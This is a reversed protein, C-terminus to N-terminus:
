LDALTTSLETQVGPPGITGVTDVECCREGRASEFAEELFDLLPAKEGSIHSPQPRDGGVDAHVDKALWEAIFFYTLDDGL